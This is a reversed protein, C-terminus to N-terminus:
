RAISLASILYKLDKDEFEIKIGVNLYSEDLLNEGGIFIWLNKRVRYYIRTRLYFPRIEKRYFGETLIKLNEKPSLTVGIGGGTELWGGYLVVNKKVEQGIEARFLSLNKDIDWGGGVLYYKGERPEIRLYGTQIDKSGEYGIFTKVQNVRKIMKEAEKSVKETSKLTEKVNKYIEESNILKGAVGKGKNVKELIEKLNRLSPSIEEDWKKLNENAEKSLKNINKVAENGKDLIKTLNEYIDKERVLKGITGNGENINKILLKLSSALEQIETSTKNFNSISKKVDEKSKETIESIRSIVNQLKTLTRKVENSIETAESVLEEIRPPSIGKIVSGPKLLPSETSGMTISLLKGGMISISSITFKSDEKIPTKSRVWITVIIKNKSFKVGTVEGVKLGALRVEDGIKLGAVYNFIIHYYSGRRFPKIKGVLISLFILFILGLIFFTGVKKEISGIM